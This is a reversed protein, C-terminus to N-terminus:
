KKAMRAAEWLDAAKDPSVEVAYLRYSLRPVPALRQTALYVQAAIGSKRCQRAVHRLLRRGEVTSYVWIIGPSCPPALACVGDQFNLAKIAAPQDHLTASYKKLQQLEQPTV